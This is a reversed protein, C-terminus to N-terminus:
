LEMGTERMMGITGRIFMALLGSLFEMGTRETKKLSERMRTLSRTEAREGFEEDTDFGWNSNGEIASGTRGSFSEREMRRGKKSSESM